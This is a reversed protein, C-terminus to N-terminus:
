ILDNDEKLNDIKTQLDDIVDFLSEFSTVLRFNDGFSNIIDERRPKVVEVM